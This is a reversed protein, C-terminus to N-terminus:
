LLFRELPCCVHRVAASLKRQLCLSGMDDNYSEETKKARSMEFELFFDSKRRIKQYQKVPYYGTEIKTTLNRM